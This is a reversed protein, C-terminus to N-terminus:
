AQGAAARCILLFDEAVLSAGGILGGDVDTQAFLESANGPKVSGGYLIRIQNALAIGQGSMRDRIFRHAAQAQQPSATVGTGIAWVPEYAVVFEEGADRLVPCVADIQRALVAEAQGAERERLTEGVCVVPTIGASLARVVKAAVDADSEAFLARRESHGILAWRCALDALMAASVEGTYAGQEFSAINQAGWTIPSGALRAATLGLYPYPPCVGVQVASHAPLGARLGDLLVEISAITGHMKWNGLVLPSRRTTASSRSQTM